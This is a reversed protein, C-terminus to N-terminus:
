NLFRGSRASLRRDRWTAFCVVRGGVVGDRAWRVAPIDCGLCAVLSAVAVKCVGVVL